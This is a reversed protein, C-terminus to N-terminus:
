PPTESPEAAPESAPASPKAEGNGSKKGNKGNIKEVSRELDSALQQDVAHIATRRDAVEMRRVYARLETFAEMARAVAHRSERNPVEVSYTYTGRWNREIRV